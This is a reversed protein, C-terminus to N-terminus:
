ETFYGNFGDGDGASSSFWFAVMVEMEIRLLMGSELTEISLVSSKPSTGLENM